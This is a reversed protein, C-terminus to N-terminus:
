TPRSALAMGNALPKIQDPPIYCHKSMSTKAALPAEARARKVCSVIRLLIAPLLAPERRHSRAGRRFGQRKGRTLLERGFVLATAAVLSDGLSM